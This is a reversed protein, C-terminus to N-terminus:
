KGGSTGGSSPYSSGSRSGSSSSGGNNRSPPVYVYQGKTAKMAPLTRAQPKPEPPATFTSVLNVLFYILIIGGSVAYYIKSLM